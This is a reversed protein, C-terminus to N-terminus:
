NRTHKSLRPRRDLSNERIDLYAFYTPKLKVALVNALLGIGSSVVGDCASLKYGNHHFRKPILKLTAADQAQARRGWIAM